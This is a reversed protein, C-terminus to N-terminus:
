AQPSSGASTTASKAKAKPKSAKAKTAAKAAPKKKSPAKKKAGDKALSAMLKELDKRQSQVFTKFKEIEGPIQKQFKLLDKREKVLLKRVKEVDTSVLRKVERGQREAFQRVEEVWDASNQLREQVVQVKDVFKRIESSIKNAM